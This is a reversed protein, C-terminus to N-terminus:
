RCEVTYGDSTKYTARFSDEMKQKDEKSGCSKQFDIAQDIGQRKAECIYCKKCSDMTFIIVASFFLLRLKINM